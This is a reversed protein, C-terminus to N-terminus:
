QDRMDEVKEGDFGGYSTDYQVLLTDPAKQAAGVLRRKIRAARSQEATAASKKEIDIGKTLNM